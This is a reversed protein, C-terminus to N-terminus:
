RFTKKKTFTELQLDTGNSSISIMGNEGTTMVKAGSNKWREVIEPKPHGFPSQKGVSIIALKAKTTNVFNETSSTTSGHHAVKIVDASLFEPANLLNNETEREIDGTMLFKRAGFVMRLVTSHNNDSYAESNEDKEPSLVEVKADGFTLVDGRSVILSEIGRKELISYLNAFEPNKM